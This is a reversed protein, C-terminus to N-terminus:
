HETLFMRTKIEYGYTMLQVSFVSCRVSIHRLWVDEEHSVANGIRRILAIADARKVLQLKQRPQAFNM